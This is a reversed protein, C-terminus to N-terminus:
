FNVWGLLCIATACLCYMKSPLCHDWISQRLFFHSNQQYVSLTSVFQLLFFSCMLMKKFSFITKCALLGTIPQIPSTTLFPMNLLSLLIVWMRLPMTLATCYPVKLVWWSPLWLFAHSCALFMALCWLWKGVPSCLVPMTLLSSVCCPVM